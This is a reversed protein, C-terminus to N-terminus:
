SLGISVTPIFLALAINFPNCLSFRLYPSIESCERVVEWIM